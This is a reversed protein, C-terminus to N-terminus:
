QGVPPRHLEYQIETSCYWDGTLRGLADLRRLDVRNNELLLDDRLHIRVVEAIVLHAGYPPGGVPMIQRAVCELNAPAAAVRPPRVVASPATELGAAAFEDVEPPWEAASVAMAPGLAASVTNIVFEGTARINRLTDKEEGDRAGVSIAIHPPSSTIMMFFSFPALNAHGQADVTSAWGIPRPVVVSALLKYALQPDIERPNFLM